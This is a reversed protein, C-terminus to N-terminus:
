RCQKRKWQTSYGPLDDLIWKPIGAPRATDFDPCLEGTLSKQKEQVIQRLSEHVNLYNATEWSDKNRLSAPPKEETTVGAVVAAPIGLLCKLFSRRFM